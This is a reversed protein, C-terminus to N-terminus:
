GLLDYTHIVGKNRLINQNFGDVRIHFSVTKGDGPNEGNPSVGLKALILQSRILMALFINKRTKVSQTDGPTNRSWKTIESIKGSALERKFDNTTHTAKNITTLM